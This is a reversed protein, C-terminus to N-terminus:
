QIEKVGRAPNGAVVTDAPVDRTVVARAAVVARDGITVGKLIVAGSGVWVDDGIVVPRIDDAGAPEGARRSAADLPHGDLDYVLVGTAFLCHKGVRVSRGVNFGCGHGIFTGDGLVLEPHVGALRGFTISSRGSLRVGNGIVIRGTGQIYPLEEMRFSYGVTECQSRFLPENWFFRRTWIWGERILVHGRYLARFVPRTPGQVPLHFGLVAKVGRKARGWVPGEGRRLKIVWSM